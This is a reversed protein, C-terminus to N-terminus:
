MEAQLCPTPALSAKVADRGSKHDKNPIRKGYAGCRFVERSSRLPLSDALKQKRLLKVAATLFATRLSRRDGTLALGGIAQKAGAKKKKAKMCANFQDHVSHPPLIVRLPPKRSELAVVIGLALDDSRGLEPHTALERLASYKPAAFLKMYKKHLMLVRPLAFNYSKGPTADRTNYKVGSTMKTAHSVLRNQDRMWASLLCLVAAKSVWIDDDLNLVADTNIHQLTFLWRNNLDNQEMRLVKAGPLSPPELDMNNWVVLVADIVQAYEPSTYERVAEALM